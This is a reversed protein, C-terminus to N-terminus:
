DSLIEEVLDTLISDEEPCEVASGFVSEMDIGPVDFTVVGAIFGSFAGANGSIPINIIPLYAALQMGNIAGWIEAM